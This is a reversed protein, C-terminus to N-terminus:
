FKLVGHGINLAVFISGDENICVGMPYDLPQSSSVHNGNSDFIVLRGAESYETVYTYDNKDIAIGGAGRVNQGGYMRVLVGSTSYVFVGAVREDKDGFAVHINGSSDFALDYPKYKVNLKYDMQGTQNFVVINKSKMSAVFLRNDPSMKMGLPYNLEDKGFWQSVTKSTHSIKAFESRKSDAVFIFDDTVVIGRSKKFEGGVLELHGGSDVDFVNLFPNYRSSVYLCRNLVSCYRANTNVIECQPIDLNPPYPRVLVPTLIHEGKILVDLVYKGPQMPADFRCSYSSTSDNVPVVMGYHYSPVIITDDDHVVTGNNRRAEIIATKTFGAVCSLEKQCTPNQGPSQLQVKLLSEHMSSEFANLDHAVGVHSKDEFYKSM